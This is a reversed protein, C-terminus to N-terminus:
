KDRDWLANRLAAGLGFLVAGAVTGGILQGVIYPLSPGVERGAMEFWTGAAGVTAGWVM